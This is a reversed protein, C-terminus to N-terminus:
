EDGTKPKYRSVAACTKEIDSGPVVRRDFNASIREIHSDPVVRGDYKVTLKDGFLDSLTAIRESYPALYSIEELHSDTTM